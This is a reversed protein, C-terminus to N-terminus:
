KDFVAITQRSLAILQGNATWINAETSCYGNAAHVTQDDFAIWDAMTLAPLPHIFEINWNITSAPAPWKMMQLVTPPLADLLGILAVDDLVGTTNKFRFWGRYFDTKKGTFPIGGEQISMEFHKLFKPTVKPIPPIFSKKNPKAMTLPPRNDVEIKSKRDCVFCAQVFTCLQGNQSAMATWQSVNKGTRLERLTIEIPTDSLMPGVFNTNVNKITLIPNVQRKIAYVLLASAVGGYITRGQTWSKPITLTYQSPADLYRRCAQILEPFNM